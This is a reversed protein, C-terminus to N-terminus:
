RRKPGRRRYPFKIEDTPSPRRGVPSYGVRRTMELVARTTAPSIAPDGNLARSVTTTSVQLAAAVDTITVRKRVRGVSESYGPSMPTRGASATSSTWLGIRWRAHRTNPM